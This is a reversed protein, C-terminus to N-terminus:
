RDAGPGADTLILDRNTRVFLPVGFDEELEKMHRSVASQSIYLQEAAKTFNLTQAVTYFYRLKNYNM